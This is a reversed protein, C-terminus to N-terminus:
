LAEPELPEIDSSEQKRSQSMRTKVVGDDSITVRQRLKCGLDGCMFPTMADVKRGLRSIKMKLESREDDAQQRWDMFSRTLKEIRERLDNRDEKYHDRESRLDEVKQKYDSLYEGTDKLMQQYMDQVEKTTNVEASIAEAKAKRKQYRWTFFAGAGGGLFLGLINIITDLTIEM